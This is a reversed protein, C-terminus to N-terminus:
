IFVYSSNDNIIHNLTWAEALLLIMKDDATTPLNNNKNHVILGIQNLKKTLFEKHKDDTEGGSLVNLMKRAFDDVSSVQDFPKYPEVRPFNAPNYVYSNRKNKYNEM